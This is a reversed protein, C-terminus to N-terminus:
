INDELDGTNISSNTESDQTFNDVVKLAKEIDTDDDVSMHRVEKESQETNPALESLFQNNKLQQKILRYIIFLFPM